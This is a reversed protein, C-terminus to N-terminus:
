ERRKPALEKTLEEYVTRRPGIAVVHVLKRPSEISYIIRLRGVRYSYFGELDEQLPKGENPYQAIARFSEKVKRKLTPPMHSILLRTDGDVDLRYSV